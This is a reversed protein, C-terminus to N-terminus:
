KVKGKFNAVFEDFKQTKYKEEKLFVLIQELSKADKYGPVVTILSLNEALFAYSPYSMQGNLLAQALEHTSREGSNQNKFVRGAFNIPATQEANLKVAYYNDNLYQVIVPDTFTEKDMKKCWGCWDTFVDIIFKKPKVANLKEAEEITYWRTVALQGFSLHALSVFIILSFIKKM